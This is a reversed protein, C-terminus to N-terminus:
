IAWTVNKRTTRSKINSSQSFENRLYATIDHIKKSPPVYLSIMETARGKVAQIDELQKKFEYRALAEPKVM